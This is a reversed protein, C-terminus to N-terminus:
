SATAKELVDSPVLYFQLTKYRTCGDFLIHVKGQSLSVTALYYQSPAAMRPRYYRSICQSTDGESRKKATRSDFGSEEFVHKLTGEIPDINAMQRGPRRLSVTTGFFMGRSQDEDLFFTPHTSVFQYLTSIGVKLVEVDRPLLGVGCFKALSRCDEDSLPSAFVSLECEPVHGLEKKLDGFLGEQRLAGVRSSQGEGGSGGEDRRILDIVDKLVITGAQLSNFFTSDVRHVFNLLRNELGSMFLSVPFESRKGLSSFLRCVFETRKDSHVGDQSGLLLPILMLLYRSVSSESDKPMDGTKGVLQIITLLFSLHDLCEEFSKGKMASNFSVPNTLNLLQRFLIVRANRGLTLGPTSASNQPIIYRLIVGAVENKEAAFASTSQKLAHALSELEVVDSM